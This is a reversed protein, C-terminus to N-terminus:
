APTVSAMETPAAAPGTAGAARGLATDLRAIFPKAGLRVLIERASEAAARVEPEAPDLLIAMDIGCLAEDWALGLDRWSRLAERYLPLAEAPRHDLAALGARITRRDAEIAPGHFGSTELAELDAAAATGEGLWLGSRAARPIAIPLLPSYLSAAHHFAQRAEELDSVAFAVLGDTMTANSPQQVDDTHALLRHLEALPDDVQEGCAATIPILATLLWARDVPEWDETLSAGLEDEAASWDGTRLGFEGLNQLLGSLWARVGLRRALALGARSTELAARPDRSAELYALNNIARLIGNGTGLSEALDRGARIAGLGEITRGISGLATGKTVLTDAVVAQHDAHEAAELVRDALDIAQRNDDHLVANAVSLVVLARLSSPAGARVLQRAYIALGATSASSGSSRVIM